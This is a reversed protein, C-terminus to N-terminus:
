HVSKIQDEETQLYNKEKNIDLPCIDNLIIKAIDKTPTVTLTESM